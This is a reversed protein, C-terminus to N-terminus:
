HLLAVLVRRFTTDCLGRENANETMDTRPSETEDLRAHLLFGSPGLRYYILGMESEGGSAAREGEGRGGGGGPALATYQGRLM